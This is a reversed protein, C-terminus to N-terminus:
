NRQADRSTASAVGATAAPAGSLREYAKEMTLVDCGSGAAAEVAAAFHEPTCGYPSPRETVDHTYFVLWGGSRGTEEILRRASEANELGGYLSNALLAALDVTGRNIGPMIGRATAFRRAALAKASLSIEGFPYSFSVFDEGGGLLRAQRNNESLEQKLAAEGLSRCNVHSYTHCGLEHGRERLAALDERTMLIQGQDEGGLLSMAGYYTGHLGHRELIAGGASLASRPFDDFTFSIVGGAQAMALPKRRLHAVAMRQLKRGIRKALSGPTLAPAM